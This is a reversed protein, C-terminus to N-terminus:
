AAQGRLEDRLAELKERWELCRWYNSVALMHGERQAIHAAREEVFKADRILREVVALDDPEPAPTSGNQGEGSAERIGAGSSRVDPIATATVGDL